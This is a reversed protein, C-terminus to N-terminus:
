KLDNSHSSFPVFSKGVAGERHTVGPREVVDTEEQIRKQGLDAEIHHDISATELAGPPLWFDTSRDAGLELCCDQPNEPTRPLEQM